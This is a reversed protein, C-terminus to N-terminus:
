RCGKTRETVAGMILLLLGGRDYGWGIAVGAVGQVDLGRM